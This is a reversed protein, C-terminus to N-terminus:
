KTHEEMAGTAYGASSGRHRHVVGPRFRITKKQRFGAIAAAFALQSLYRGVFLHLYCSTIIPAVATGSKIAGHCGYAEKHRLVSSWHASTHRLASQVNDYLYYCM